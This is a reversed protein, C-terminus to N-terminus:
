KSKTSPLSTNLNISGLRNAELNQLSPTPQLSQATPGFPANSAHSTGAGDQSPQIM